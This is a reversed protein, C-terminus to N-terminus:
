GGRRLIADEHEQRAIIDVRQRPILRRSVEEESSYRRVRSRLRGFATDLAFRAREIRVTFARVEEELKRVRTIALQWADYFIDRDDRTQSWEDGLIQLEVRAVDREAQFMDALAETHARQEGMEIVQHSGAAREQHLQQLQQRLEANEAERQYALDRYQNEMEQHVANQEELHAIRDELQVNQTMLEEIIDDATTGMDDHYGVPEAGETEAEEAEDDEGDVRFVGGRVAEPIDARVDEDEDSEFQVPAIPAYGILQETDVPIDRIEEEDKAHSSQGIEPM